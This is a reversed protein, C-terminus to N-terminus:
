ALRVPAEPAGDRKAGILIRGGGEHMELTALAKKRSKIHKNIFLRRYLFSYHWCSSCAM